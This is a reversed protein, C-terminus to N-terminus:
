NALVLSIEGVLRPYRDVINRGHSVFSEIVEDQNKVEAMRKMRFSLNSSGEM